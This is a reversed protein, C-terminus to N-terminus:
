LADVFRARSRPLIISSGYPLCKWPPHSMNENYNVSSHTVNIVIFVHRIAYSFHIGTTRSDAVERILQLAVLRCSINEVTCVWRCIAYMSTKGGVYKLSKYPLVGKGSHSGVPCHSHLSASLGTPLMTFIGNAARGCHQRCNGVIVVCDSDMWQKWTTMPSQHSLLKATYRKVMFTFSSKLRLKCKDKVWRKGFYSYHYFFWGM